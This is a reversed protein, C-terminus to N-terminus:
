NTDGYLFEWYVSVNLRVIQMRLFPSAMQFLCIIRNTLFTIAFSVTLLFPECM